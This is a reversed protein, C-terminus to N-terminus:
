NPVLGLVGTKNDVVIRQGLSRSMAEAYIRSNADQAGGAGLGVVFTIPRQQPFDQARTEIAWGLSCLTFAVVVVSRGTWRMITAM